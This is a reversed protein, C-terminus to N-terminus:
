CGRIASTGRRTCVVVVRDFDLDLSSTSFYSLSTHTLRRRRRRRCLGTAASRCHSFSVRAKDQPGTLFAAELASVPQGLIGEEKKAWM